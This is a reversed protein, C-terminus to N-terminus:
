PYMLSLDDVYFMTSSKNIEQFIYEEDNTTFSLQLIGDNYIREAVKMQYSNKPLSHTVAKVQNNILWKDILYRNLSVNLAVNEFGYYQAENYKDTSFVEIIVRQKNDIVKNLIEISEIKDTVLYVDQNDNLIRNVDSLTVVSLSGFISKGQIDKYLMPTNTLSEERLAKKFSIWDHGGIAVGDATVLLDVEIFKFGLSIANEIAELSNTYNKNNFNGGAHAILRNDVSKKISTFLKSDEHEDISTIGLIAQYTEKRFKVDLTSKKYEVFSIVVLSFVLLFLSSYRIMNKM